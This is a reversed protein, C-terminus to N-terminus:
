NRVGLQLFETKAYLVNVAELLGNVTLHEPLGLEKLLARRREVSGPGTLGMAYLDAKTVQGSRAAAEGEEFTAGAQELAQVLVAPPMGEVGIKGERGPAKKRREKGYVDPIYAQKVQERPLMGKLKGRIVFGAGDSDLLLVAGREATLRRLLAMRERDRFIGFGRTEFIVGEVVQSLANKDYRGEVVVVERVRRM